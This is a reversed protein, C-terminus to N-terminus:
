TPFGQIAWLLVGVAVSVGGGTLVGYVAARGRLTAQENEVARLRVEHDSRATELNAYQNLAQAVQGRLEAMAVLLNTREDAPIPDPM